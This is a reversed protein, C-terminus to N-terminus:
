SIRKTLKVDEEEFGLRNYFTRANTNAAGTDLTITRLGQQRAHDTVADMLARGVGRGEHQPSVVLEGVYLEQDGSWHARQEGAVFGTIDDGDEAVFVFRHPEGARHLAEVVWGTVASLVGEPPRWPAVGETLRPALALVASHDAEEYRRIHM